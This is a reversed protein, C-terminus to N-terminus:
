PRVFCSEGTGVSFVFTRGDQHNRGAYGLSEREDNLGELVRM